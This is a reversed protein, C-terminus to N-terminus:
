GSLMGFLLLVNTGQDVNTRDVRQGLSWRAKGEGNDHPSLWSGWCAFTNPLVNKEDSPLSLSCRLDRVFKCPKWTIVLQLSMRLCHISTYYDNM